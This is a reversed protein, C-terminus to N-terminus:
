AAEKLDADVDIDISGDDNAPTPKAAKKRTPISYEAAFAKVDVEEGSPALAANLAALANAAVMLANAKATRDQPPTVDWEVVACNELAEEGFRSIVWPPIGQTNITYALSDATDKILDGRISAHVDANAFGTGGDVLVTSGTLAIVMDRDSGEITKLFCEYGRGNSELLKVDYGPTLGFVTNVGWAMVARFWSQKQKEDAGQPAVAVRAPNALKGEWNAKHMRAHEKDIWSRGVARWLGNQWPAIRGRTHLVWRGDGPTVPILGAVSQYYWRNESWRFRLWEPDLRVFVPYDRGEVPVLEGVGVGLLIEDAALMALEQPPFMEDFVSRVSDHGLELASIIETAGRFKKPLRVLGGTRTALVGAFTGDKRVSRMLRAAHSLDGMDAAIEAHELDSLHWRTKTTPLPSLQGGLRARTEKVQRSDLDPGMAPTAAIYASIGLLAALRAALKM